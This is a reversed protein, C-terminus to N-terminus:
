IFNAENWCAILKIEYRMMKERERANSRYCYNSKTLNSERDGNLKAMNLENARVVPANGNTVYNVFNTVFKM